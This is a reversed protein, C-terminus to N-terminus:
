DESWDIAQGCNACYKDSPLICDGGCTPCSLLYRSLENDSFPTAKKPVQKEVVPILAEAMEDFASIEAWYEHNKLHKLAEEITM